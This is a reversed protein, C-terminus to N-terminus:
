VGVHFSDHPRNGQQQQQAKTERPMVCACIYVGGVCVCVCVCMGGVGGRVCLVCVCVCVCLNFTDSSSASGLIWKARTQPALLQGGMLVYEEFTCLMLLQDTCLM